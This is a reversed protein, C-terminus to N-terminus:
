HLFFRSGLFTKVTGECNTSPSGDVAEEMPCNSFYQIRICCEEKEKCHLVQSLPAPFKKVDVASFIFKNNACNARITRERWDRIVYSASEEENPSCSVNSYHKFSDLISTQTSYLYAFFTM